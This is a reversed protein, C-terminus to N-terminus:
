EGGGLIERIKEHISDITFPKQIFPTDPDLVGHRIHGSMFIAKLDPYTRRLKEVMQIGSMNPMVVDTIILDPMFGKEEILAQAEDANAALTVGYGLQALLRAILKRLSVEDEVVLIQENGRRPSSIDDIVALTSVEKSKDHPLYIKFTSGHGPESYVFIHGKCQTVIGYATPLGLGTGKDKEKTTFFPEFLQNLIEKSMGCGTDMISLVIYDGPTVEPHEAAYDNDLVATSTEIFLTGGTPMADRANVALNIIVQEIQGPDVRVRGSDPALSLKLVIDEGILRHLMKETARVIDNIDLVQFHLPQKRSFALLQRVLAASRNGAEMIHKVDERLPNDAPLKGLLIEAYGLIVGLMNNFDHAVGGALQGISQMKQAQFMQEQLLAREENFQLHETIDRKVAVYNVIQGDADKVPSITDEETYLTGDKRKNVMRGKWVKGRTITHWLDQYFAKDQNGSYLVRPNKGIIEEKTYGTVMEFAPNVYQTLGRTDTIVIMEAAQEVAMTVKRLEAEKAQRTQNEAKLDELISLTANQSARLQQLAEQLKIYHKKSQTIDQFAGQVKIIRGDADKVAEGTTRVWVRRGTRTIIEMEEDYPIGEEVCATYVKKIKDRWEPAYFQIGEEVSPAYGHPMEHIDAVIDSWIVTNTELDVNWGGFQATREAIRILTYYSLREEETEKRRKKERADERAHQVAFPLRQLSDKLVYDVAGKKILEIATEEGISGSVCIFPTEPCIENRIRLAGFADFGPLKFDALIIDYATTRLSTTFAEETEVRTPTFQCEDEMLQACILEFDQPSDELCLIHLHNDTIATEKKM